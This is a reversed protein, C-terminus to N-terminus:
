AHHYRERDAKKLAELVVEWRLAVAPEAGTTRLFFPGDSHLRRGSGMNM